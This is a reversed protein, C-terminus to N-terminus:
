PYRQSSSKARSSTYQSSKDNRQQLEQIHPPFSRGVIIRNDEPINLVSLYLLQIEYKKYCRKISPFRLHNTEKVSEFGILVFTTEFEEDFGQHVIFIPM